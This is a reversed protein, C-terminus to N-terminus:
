SKQRLQIGLFKELKDVLRQEPPHKQQEVKHLISEKEFLKEALEKVTLGRKERAHRIKTGFDEVLPTEDFKENKEQPLKSRFSLNQNFSPKSPKGYATCKLCVLYESGDMTITTNAGSGGCIECYM